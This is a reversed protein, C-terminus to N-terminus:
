MGPIRNHISETACTDKWKSSNRSFRRENDVDSEREAAGHDPEAEIVNPRNLTADKWAAEIQESAQASSMKPNLKNVLQETETFTLNRLTESKAKKERKDFRSLIENLIPWKQTKANINPPMVQILMDFRGGRSFAADFGSVYNTALLFVIRREENIQALKPLMATTIFRSLVERNRARDRGMEDFEDLLVVVQETMALMSFLRNAMAQIRDLGQQVLYSPDVSLQPWGLFESILRALKTKSTGPPGFLIASMPTKDPLRGGRAVKHADRAIPLLFATGITERLSLVEGRYDVDADLFGPAFETLDSKSRPALAPPSYIAGIEEFVARRIAEAVLRDLAHAFDYVSATSWSEPGGIQPHHGSAWGVVKRPNKPDLEFSNPGLLEASRQLKPIFPLLDWRMRNCGLLQTLLEYEFCYANGVKPYHFLPRSYPWSGDDNQAAFFAELASDFIQKQEPSIHEDSASTKALILAYALQLADAVRSQAALLSVQKNIEAQAWRHVRQELEPSALELRKIVRFALQTLYASEPYPPISIAGTRRLFRVIRPAIEHTVMNRHEEHGEYDPYALQLDLVGEAIFSLTFPNNAKLGASKWPRDLLQQAVANTHNWLRKFSPTWLGARVLSSVCTATSSRSAEARKQPQHYFGRRDDSVYHKMTAEHNLRVSALYKKLHDLTSFDAGSSM